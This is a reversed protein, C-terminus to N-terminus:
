RLRVDQTQLIARQLQENELNAAVRPTPAERVPPAAENGLHGAELHSVISERTWARQRLRVADGEIADQGDDAANGEDTRLILWSSSSTKDASM